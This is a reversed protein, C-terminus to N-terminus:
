SAPLVTYDYNIVQWQDEERDVWIRFRAKIPHAGGLPVVQKGSLEYVFCDSGAGVFPATPCDHRLQGPGGVKRIGDKRIQSQFKRMEPTVEPWVDREISDWTGVVVLRRVFSDAFPKANEKTPKSGGCGAVLAALAM